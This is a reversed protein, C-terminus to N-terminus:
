ELKLIIVTDPELPTDPLPSQYRVWGAGSLQIHIDERLLVPLLQRKSLGIFNPVTEDIGAYTTPPISIFGSHSIQPNRGRPIGLYNILEEAAQRIPPAAIRGGLFEAGQPKIIVLYLILSPSEAPLFAMCSAIFDTSSYAKTRPDIVEATGTKVALSLDEMYARWGTGMSSTVDMMYSRMARATEANLVQRPKEGQFFETTKDDPSVIRSIIRPPVLVGNNAIASAAQIMQLASVAIEQGM